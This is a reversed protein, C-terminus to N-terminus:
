SKKYTNLWKKMTELNESHSYINKWPDQKQGLRRFINGINYTQPGIGPKQLEEWDLPTAIPATPLIRLSYPCITTQGFSNRAYDLYLKGQRNKKLPELTFKGPFKSVLIEAIKRAVERVEKFSYEPTIPIVVHLGKSGTTMVRCHVSMSAFSDKIILAGEIVSRFDGEPPPDLDFIMKDPKKINGATSLWTHFSLVAQNSLYILAAKSNCIAHSLRTGDARTVEILDIWRPFYDPADQQYFTEGEIGDPARHMNLPRGKLHPLMISAIKQYYDLIDQKRIKQGPYFIKELHSAEIIKGEIKYTRKNM